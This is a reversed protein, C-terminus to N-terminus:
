IIYECGKNHNIDIDNSEIAMRNTESEIHNNVNNVVNNNNNNNIVTDILYDNHVRRTKEMENLNEMSNILKKGYKTKNHNIDSDSDSYDVYDNITRKSQVKHITKIHTFLSQKSAYSKACINCPFSM